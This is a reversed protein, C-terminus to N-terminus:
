DGQKNKERLMRRAEIIDILYCVLTTIGVTVFTELVNWTNNRAFLIQLFAHDGYIDVLMKHNFIFAFMVVVFIYILMSVLVVIPITFFRNKFVPISLRYLFGTGVGLIVRPAVAVIINTYTYDFGESIYLNEGLASINAILYVCVGYVLGIIGGALPGKRVAALFVPVALFTVTVQGINIFGVRPIFAILLVSAYVLLELWYERDLKKLDFM